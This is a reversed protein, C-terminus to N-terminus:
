PWVVSRLILLVTLFFFICMLKSMSLKHLSLMWSFPMWFVKPPSLLVCWKFWSRIQSFIFVTLPTSLATCLRGWLFSICASLSAVAQQSPKRCLTQSSQYNWGQSSCGKSPLHQILSASDKQCPLMQGRSDGMALTVHTRREEQFRCPTHMAATDPSRGGSWVTRKKRFTASKRM